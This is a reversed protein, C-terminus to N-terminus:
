SFRKDFEEDPLITFNQGEVLLCTTNFLYFPPMWTRKGIYQDRIEEWKEWDWRECTWVSKFDRHTNEYVSEAIFVGNENKVIKDEM